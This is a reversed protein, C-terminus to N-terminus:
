RSGTSAPASSTLAATAAATPVGAPVVAHDEERAAGAPEAGLEDGGQHGCPQRHAHQGAVGSARLVQSREANLDDHAVDPM